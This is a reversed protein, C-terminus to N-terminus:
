WSSKLFVKCLDLKKLPTKLWKLARCHWLCDLPNPYVDLHTFVSLIKSLIIEKSPRSHSIFSYLSLLIISFGVDLWNYKNNLLWLLCCKQYIISSSNDMKNLNVAHFIVHTWAVAAVNLKQLSFWCLHFCTQMSLDSIM